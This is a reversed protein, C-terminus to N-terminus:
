KRAYRPLTVPRLGVCRRAHPAEMTTQFRWCLACRMSRSDWNARAACLSWGDFTAPATSAIAHPVVHRHRPLLALREYYRITEINCGTRKSLEGIQM